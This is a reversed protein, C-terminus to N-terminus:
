APQPEGAQKRAEKGKSGMKGMRWQHRMLGNEILREYQAQNQLLWQEFPTEAVVELLSRFGTSERIRIERFVEGGATTAQSLVVEENSAVSLILGGTPMRISLALIRSRPRILM